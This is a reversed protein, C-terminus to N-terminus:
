EDSAGKIESMAIARNQDAFRESKDKKHCRRCIPYPDPPDLFSTVVDQRYHVPLGQSLSM